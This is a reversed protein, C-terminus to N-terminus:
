KTTKDHEIELQLQAMLRWIAKALHHVGDDDIKTGRAYDIIHRMCADMQDKSKSRDWHLSQGDLHQKNGALSAKSVEAFVDPFYKIVGSYVPIAKRQEPTM